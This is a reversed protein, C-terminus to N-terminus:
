AGGAAREEAMDRLRHFHGLDPEGCHALMWARVTDRLEAARSLRSRQEGGEAGAAAAPPPHVPEGVIVRLPTRRPLWTGDRLLSRTGRLVVPVVPAGTDVAAVFSGMQFPLLGPTRYLTGEPFVAVSAGARVAAELREVNAASQALDFREVLLAGAGALLRRVLPNSRLEAKAVFRLRAPLAASLVFPDAYSAHNSAVICAGDRPLRELGEVTLSLGLLRVLARAGFRTCAAGFRPSPALAVAPCVLAAVAAAATWAWAGFALARLSAAQLRLVSALGGAALRALRFWAPGRAAAHFARKGSAYLEAMARRRIKGSSTKLVTYPPALVVEDAAEGMLDRALDELRARLEARRAADTERTEAVVVLRDTGAAPDRAAFVAVCGSRVGEVEGAAQEYEHPHLNRGARVIVDKVRGTVFVEGEAVYALDGSELWEGDFLARTAAPNRFYGGTTSPGRIQLRGETREGTERGAEDVTRVEFGPIPIGSSVFTRVPEGAPAGSSPGSAAAPAPAPLVPAARRERELAARAVSEVRPGRGLPTFAVGLTAEALGYVPALAGRDFGYPEFRRAFAELSEPHVMEAGNFALRWGSLDLGELEEDAIRRACLEFAFNPGGSITGGWADITRLWRAPRALFALPSMLVLPLGYVLSGLWAGILGMDHYLPLWSVFVDNRPGAELAAAMAHISALVDAHTLIVGKPDGTSGSTYQLFATDRPAPRWAAALDPAPPAGAGAGAGLEGVTVLACREGARAALLRSLVRAEDFTVLWQARANALIREHRRVHDEVQALRAPPYIPVPVGGALQVGLFCALYEFGTPLMIAVTRGPDLGRRALEEAVRLARELLGGYTLVAGAGGDEDPMRVHVRDPHEAAHWALADVLTEAHPPAAVPGAAAARAAAGAEEDGPRASAPAPHPAGSAAPRVPAPPPAREAPRAAALARLLDRPTEAGALAEDPLSAGAAREVRGVLEMRSLSDLGLDRELDTDLDVEASPAGRGPRLEAAIEAVLSLLTAPELARASAASGGGGPLPGGPGGTGDGGAGSGAPLRGPEPAPPPAPSTPPSSHM